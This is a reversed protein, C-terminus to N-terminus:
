CIILDRAEIAIRDQEIMQSAGIRSKLPFKINSESSLVKWLRYLFIHVSQFICVQIKQSHIKGFHIKWFHKKGSTYKEFTNKEEEFNYKELM